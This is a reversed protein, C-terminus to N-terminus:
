ATGGARPWTIPCARPPAATGLGAPPSIVTLAGHPTAHAHIRERHRRAPTQVALGPKAPLRLRWLFLQEGVIILGTVTVLFVLVAGASRISPPVSRMLGAPMFRSCCDRPHTRKACVGSLCWLTELLSSSGAQPWVPAFSYSPCAEGALIAAATSEHSLQVGTFRSVREHAMKVSYYVFVASLMVRGALLLQNKELAAATAAQAPTGMLGGGGGLRLERAKIARESTLLILIGGIITVSELLFELNRQQAYLFPHIAAWVTLTICGTQPALRTLILLVGATQTLIFFAPM